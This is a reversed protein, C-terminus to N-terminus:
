LRSGSSDSSEDSELEDLSESSSRPLELLLFLIKSFSIGQYERSFKALCVPSGLEMSDLRIM